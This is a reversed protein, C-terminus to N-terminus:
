TFVPFSLTITTGQGEESQARVQGGHTKVIDHVLSLGIGVGGFERTDTNDVRYFREFIKGLAEAPIGIGQDAISINIMQGSQEASIKVCGGSPSYKIANNVVRCVAERVQVNDGKIRALDDPCAVELEAVSNDRSLDALISNLLSCVDVAFFSVPHQGAKLQQLNLFSDILENLKEAERYITRVHEKLKEPEVQNTMLYEVYGMVATLPTRMEHSVASILEEKLQETQKVETIDFAMEMRVFKGNFWPIARDICQYWRNNTSNQFEWIYPPAPEGDLLLKDNTCFPCMEAQDTQLYEYCKKGVWNEGFTDQGLQNLYLLEFTELDAVYVLANISDLIKSVLEFQQKRGVEEEYRQTIDEVMSLAGSVDGASDRLPTNYWSCVLQRGDKTINANISISSDDGQMLNQWVKDVVSKSEEPVVLEYAHKGRAEDASWGFIKEAAPNWEHVAFEEDWVIYGIPMRDINFRLRQHTSNLHDMSMKLEVEKQTRLEVEHRLAATRRRVTTRLQVIWLFAVLLIVGLWPLIDALTRKYDYNIPLWRNRIQQHTSDPIINLVTDIVHALEPWDKRVGMALGATGYPTSGVAKLNTFGRQEVTWSGASLSGVYADALGKSVARLAEDTNDMELLNAGPIDRLLKDVDIYVREVAITKGTLSSFDQLETNSKKTVIVWDYAVYDHSFALFSEREKTRIVLLVLDVESSDRLDELSEMWSLGEVPVFQIGTKESVIQLYDYAIGQYRHDKYFEFPPDTRSIRVRVSPHQAIWEQEVTSFLSHDVAQALSYSGTFLVAAFTPLLLRKSVRVLLNM